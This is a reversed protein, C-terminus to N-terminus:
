AYLEKIEIHLAKAFLAVETDTVRRIQAEIKALTSRSIDWGLLNCRAALGEQTLEQAIRIRKVSPGITNM